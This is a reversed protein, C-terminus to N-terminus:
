RAILSLVQVNRGSPAAVTVAVQKVGSTPTDVQITTTRTYGLYNGNLNEITTGATLPASTYSQNMLCELRQEALTAATTQEGGWDVNQYATPFM